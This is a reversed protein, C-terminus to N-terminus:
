NNHSNQENSQDDKRFYDVAAAVVRVHELDKRTYYDDDHRIYNCIIDLIENYILSIADEGYVKKVEKYYVEFSPNTELHRRILHVHNRIAVLSDIFEKSNM